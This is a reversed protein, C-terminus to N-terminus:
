GLLALFVVRRSRLEQANRVQTTHFIFRHHTIISIADLNEWVNQLKVTVVPLTFSSRGCTCAARSGPRRVTEM